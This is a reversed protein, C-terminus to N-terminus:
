PKVILQGNMNPHFRCTYAFTGLKAVVTSGKAGPPVIVDFGGAKSTATHAVIDENDWEVTDGVHVTATVPLYAIDKMAIRDVQGKASVPQALAAAVAVTALTKRVLSGASYGLIAGTM